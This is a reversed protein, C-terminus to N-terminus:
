YDSLPKDQSVLPQLFSQLTGQWIIDGINKQLVILEKQALVELKTLTFM